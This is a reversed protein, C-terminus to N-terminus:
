HTCLIQQTACHVNGGGEDYDKLDVFKVLGLQSQIAKEYILFPMTSIRGEIQNKFEYTVKSILYPKSILYKKNLYISNVPNTLIAQGKLNWFVPLDRFHVACRAAQKIKLKAADIQNQWLTWQAMLIKNALVQDATIMKKSEFKSKWELPLPRKSSNRIQIQDFAIELQARQEPSLPEPYLELNKNQTLFTKMQQPSAVLIECQQRNPNIFFIEDLHGVQLNPVKIKIVKKNQKLYEEIQKPFPRAHTEGVLVTSPNLFLINGGDARLEFTQPDLNDEYLNKNNVLNEGKLAQEVKIGPCQAFFTAVSQAGMIGYPLASYIGQSSFFGPDRM